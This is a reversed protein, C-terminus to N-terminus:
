RLAQPLTRPEDGGRHTCEMERARCAKCPKGNDCRIRRARCWDCARSVQKRAPRVPSSPRLLETPSTIGEGGHSSGSALQAIPLM